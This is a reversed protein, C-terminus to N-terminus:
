SRSRSPSKLASSDRASNATTSDDAGVLDWRILLWFLV